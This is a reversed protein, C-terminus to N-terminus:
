PPYIFDTCVSMFCAYGVSLNDATDAITSLYVHLIDNQGEVLFFICKEPYQHTLTDLPSLLGEILRHRWCYLRYPEHSLYQELLIIAYSMVIPRKISTRPGGGLLPPM